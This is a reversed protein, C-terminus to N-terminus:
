NLRAQARTLEHTAEADAGPLLTRLRLVWLLSSLDGRTVYIGRLNGLMRNLITVSDAVPAYVAAPHGAVEQGAAFPDLLAGDSEDRVLFHSPANVGVIPVGARRGVEIMVVALSIPIGLGRELVRNLFSNDPDYYDAENGRLGARGFVVRNLEARSPERVLDALDDLRGLSAAADLDPYAHAALALAAEDLAVDPRTVVEEFWATPDM